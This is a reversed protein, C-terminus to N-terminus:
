KSRPRIPVTVRTREWEIVLDAGGADAPRLSLTLQEVHEETQGPSVATRGVDAEMVSEDIPIGWREFNTNVAVMWEDEGPVAYLGYAGAEVDVDGIRAPFGVHILTPENAGLRWPQGYPVLGGMIERGRASPQSYCVKIMGADTEIQVSDAPSARLALEDPPPGFNCPMTQAALGAPLLVAAALTTAGATLMRKM